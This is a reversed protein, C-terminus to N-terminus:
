SGEQLSLLYFAALVLCHTIAGDSILRPIEEFPVLVVEIEEEPDPRPPGVRRAEKALFVHCRNAQLAPNPHVAGLPVIEAAEYGTEELLERRAAAEPGEAGHRIGGPTELTYTGTGFRLQRVLVVQRDKTIPVITVWDPSAIRYADRAPAEGGAEVFM